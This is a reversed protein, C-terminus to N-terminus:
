PSTSLKPVIPNEWEKTIKGRITKLFGKSEVSSLDQNRVEPHDDIPKITKAIEAPSWSNLKDTIQENLKPSESIGDLILKLQDLGTATTIKFEKLIEESVIYKDPKNGDNELLKKLGYINEINKILRDRLKKEKQYDVVESGKEAVSGATSELEQKENTKPNPSQFIISRFAIGSIFSLSVIGIRSIRRMKQRGPHNRSPNELLYHVIWSLSDFAGEIVSKERRVTVSYVEKSFSKSNTLLWFKQHSLIGQSIHYFILAIENRELKEFLEAFKTYKTYKTYKDNTYYRPKRWFSAIDKWIKQWSEDNLEFQIQVSNPVLASSQPNDHYHRTIMINGHMPSQSRQYNQQQPNAFSHMKKLDLDLSDIFQRSQSGWLGQRDKLLSAIAELSVSDDNLFRSLVTGFGEVINSLIAPPLEQSQNNIEKLKRKLELEFEKATSEVDVNNNKGAGARWSLYQPLTSPIALARIVVLKITQSTYIKQKLASNAGQGDFIKEWQTSDIVQNGIAETFTRVYESKIANSSSNTIAKCASKLSQEDFLGLPLAKDASAKARKLLDLANDSASRIVTFRRVQEVAEVNFAWAVPVYNGKQEELEVKKLTLAHIYPLSPIDKEFIIPIDNNLPDLHQRGIKPIEPEFIIPIDNKLPDLHQRGINPNKPEITIINPQNLNVIDLPNFIRIQSSNRNQKDQELWELIYPIKDTGKALFYRYFSVGRGVEDEGRSIIAVVSWSDVGEGVVRGVVAPDESATGEAIRFERNSISREVALPVPDITWNMYEGSFGRSVWGGNNLRDFKIGTSFEYIAFSKGNM